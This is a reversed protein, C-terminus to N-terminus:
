NDQSLKEYADNIEKFKKESREQNEINKDPHYKLALKHYAKKIDEQLADSKLGLIKHNYTYYSPDYKRRLEEM